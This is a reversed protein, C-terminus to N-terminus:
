QFCQQFHSTPMAYLITMSKGSNEPYGSFSARIVTSRNESAHYGILHTPPRLWSKLALFQKQKQESILLMTVFKAYIHWMKTRGKFNTPTYWIHPRFRGATVLTTSWQDKNIISHFREVKKDTCGTTPCGSHECVDVSTEWHKFPFYWESTKAWGLANDGVKKQANWIQGICNEWKQQLYTTGNSTM